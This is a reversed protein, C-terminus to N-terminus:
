NECLGILLLLVFALDTKGFVAKLKKMGIQCQSNVTDISVGLRQAVENRSVKEFYCLKITERCQPPLNEVEQYLREILAARYTLIEIANAEEVEEPSAAVHHQYKQKTKQKNLYNISANKATVYVYKKLENVSNFGQVNEWLVAFSQLAIDESEYKDNTIRWSYLWVHHFLEDFLQKFAAHDGRKLADLDFQM